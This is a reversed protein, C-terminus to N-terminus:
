RRMLAFVGWGLYRRQYRVYRSPATSLEARLREALEDDPNADLWTRVALWQAAVYRDWSDEDALVMEVLDWGLGAFLEVLGPLDHYDSRASAASGEVAAQDPPDERWFPEGILLLGGPRLSSELLAMTGRVGGGIWTAGVCAAVDVPASAVHDAADGHLFTVREDVGLETARAKARSIFVTSIDVGTGTIGRDRSWQCLMEGSGCALDLVTMGPRLRIAEALTAFKEDTFPNHIRHTRERITFSRPLDM